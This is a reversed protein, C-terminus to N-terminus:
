KVGHRGMFDLATGIWHLVSDHDMVFANHVCQYQPTTGSANCAAQTDPDPTIPTFVSMQADMTTYSTKLFPSMTSDTSYPFASSENLVQQYYIPNKATNAYSDLVTKWTADGPWSMVAGSLSITAAPQPSLGAGTAILATSAGYSHGWLAIRTPDVLPKTGDGSKLVVVTSLAYRLEESAQLEMMDLTNQVATGSGQAAYDEIYLGTNTFGRGLGTVSIDDVGRMFPMFVIFGKAVLTNVIECYAIRNKQQGSGHVLMVFPLNGTSPTTAASKFLWGSWHCDWTGPKMADCHFADNPPVKPHWYEIAESPYALTCPSADAVQLGAVLVCCAVLIRM